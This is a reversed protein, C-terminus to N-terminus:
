GGLGATILSYPYLYISPAWRTGKSRCHQAPKVQGSHLWWSPGLPSLVLAHPHCHHHPFEQFIQCLGQCPFSWFKMSFPSLHTFQMLNSSFAPRMWSFFCYLNAGWLIDMRPEAHLANPVNGNWTQGYWICLTTLIGRVSVTPFSMKQRHFLSSIQATPYPAPIHAKCGPLHARCWSQWKTSPYSPCVVKKFKWGGMPCLYRGPLTSIMSWTPSLSLSPLLPAFVSQFILLYLRQVLHGVLGTENFGVAAM